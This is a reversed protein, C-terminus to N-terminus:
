RLGLENSDDFGRGISFGVFMVSSFIASLLLM